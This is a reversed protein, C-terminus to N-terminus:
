SHSAAAGGNRGASGGVLGQGPFVLVVAVVGCGVSEEGGHCAAFVRGRGGGGPRASSDAGSAGSADAIREDADAAPAGRSGQRGEWWSGDVKGGSLDVDKVRLTIAEHIRLGCGYLLRVVLGAPDMGVGRLLCGTEEVNLVVPVRKREKAREGDVGDLTQGLVKRYLFVIANLAQNQTSASVGRNVALHTLFASVEPAGMEMPHRKGHWLVFRRYWAVYTEETRLSYHEKRMVGRLQEELKMKIQHNPNRPVSGKQVSETM